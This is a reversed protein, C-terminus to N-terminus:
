GAAAGLKAIKDQKSLTTSLAQLANYTSLLPMIMSLAAGFKEFGTAGEDAFVRMSSQVSTILSSVSMATSAFETLAVSMKFTGQVNEDALGGINSMSNSLEQTAEAAREASQEMEAIENENFQMAAM